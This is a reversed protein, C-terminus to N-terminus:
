SFPKELLSSAQSKRNFIQEDSPFWPRMEPSLQDLFVKLQELMVVTMRAVPWAHKGAQILPERTYSLHALMKNLREGDSAFHM